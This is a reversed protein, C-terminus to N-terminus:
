EYLESMVYGVFLLFYKWHNIKGKQYNPARKIKKAPKLEDVYELDDSFISKAM